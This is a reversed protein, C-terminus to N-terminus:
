VSNLCHRRLFPDKGMLLQILTNIIKGLYSFIYIIPKDKLLFNLTTADMDVCMRVHTCSLNPFFFIYIYIYINGSLKKIM